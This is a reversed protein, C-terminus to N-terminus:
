ADGEDPAKVLTVGIGMAGYVAPMNAPAVKRATQRPLGARAQRELKGIMSQTAGRKLTGSGVALDRIARLSEQAQIRPLAEIYATLIPMPMKFWVM